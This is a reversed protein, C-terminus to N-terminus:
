QSAFNYIPSNQLIKLAGAVMEEPSVLQDIGDDIYLSNVNSWGRLWTLQRKALQRSAAIAASVMDDRSLEGDLYQWVQRYGVARMAPLEAGLDGRNRLTEVEEILGLELMRYFREAIRRHLFARNKPLLAIQTIDFQDVIAQIAGGDWSQRAKLQSAAVGTIRYIELARQIRQSHNPHLSAATVPDVLGLQRHLEPWGLEAAEACIADRVLKDSPPLDALGELLVRFYLMTGGVLLPVKGRRCIDAILPLADAAFDAASYAQSPDRIDVLHHPARALFDKDPKATGIDMGRYVLTSDVSIIEAPIRALLLAALDTKGTATPGMLFIVPPKGSEV